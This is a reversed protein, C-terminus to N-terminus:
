VILERLSRYTFCLTFSYPMRSHSETDRYSSQGRHWLMKTFSVKLAEPSQVTAYVDESVGSPTLTDAEEEGEQHACKSSHLTLAVACGPSSSVKDQGHHAVDM